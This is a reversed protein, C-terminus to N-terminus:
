QGATVLRSHYLGMWENKICILRFRLLVLKLVTTGLMGTEVRGFEWVCQHHFMEFQM